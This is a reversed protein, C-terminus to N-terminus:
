QGSGVLRKQYEIDVLPHVDFTAPILDAWATLHGQLTEVSDVDFVAVAGRGLRPYCFRVTGNSQLPAIWDWFALRAAAVETPRAPAPHSIVLCLMVFTV